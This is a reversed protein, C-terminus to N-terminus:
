TTASRLKRLSEEFSSELQWQGQTGEQKEKATDALVAKAWARKVTFYEWMGRMFQETGFIKWLKCRFTKRGVIERWEAAKVPQKGQRVPRENYYRKCLNITHAAGGEETVMAGIQNIRHM